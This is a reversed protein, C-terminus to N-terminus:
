VSRVENPQLAKQVEEIEQLKVKSNNTVRQVTIKINIRKAGSHQIFINLVWEERYIM